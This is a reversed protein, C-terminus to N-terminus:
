YKNRFYDQYIKQYALLPLLSVKLDTDFQFGDKNDFANAPFSNNSAQPNYSYGKPSVLVQGSGSATKNFVGYGLSNLLRLSSVNLPLGAADSYNSSNVANRIAGLSTFPVFPIPPSPVGNNSRNQSGALMSQISNNLLRWPVFFVDFNERMRGYNASMMPVTRTLNSLSFSIHNGPCLERYYIPILSGVNATFNRRCSINFRNTQLRAVTNLRSMLDSNSM